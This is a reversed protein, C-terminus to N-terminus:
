VDAAARESARPLGAVADAHDRRVAVREAKAEARAEAEVRV